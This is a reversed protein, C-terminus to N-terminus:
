QGCFLLGMSYRVSGDVIVTPVQSSRRQSKRQQEPVGFVEGDPKFNAYSERSLRDGPVVDKRM